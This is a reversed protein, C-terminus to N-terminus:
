IQPEFESERDRPVSIDINGTDTSLSKNSYGNRANSFNSRQHKSYGLHSSMEIDLAKELLRKTLQKLLGDKEFMQNVDIGSDIIQDALMSYIEESKKNKSM